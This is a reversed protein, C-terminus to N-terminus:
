GGFVDEVGNGLDFDQVVPSVREDFIVGEDVFDIDAENSLSFEVLLPDLTPQAGSESSTLNQDTVAGSISPEQVAALPRRSAKFEDLLINAEVLARDIRQIIERQLIDRQIIGMGRNEDQASSEFQSGDIYYSGQHLRYFYTEPIRNPLRSIFCFLLSSM